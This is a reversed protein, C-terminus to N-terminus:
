DSGVQKETILLKWTARPLATSPSDQLQLLLSWLTGDLGLVSGSPAQAIRQLEDIVPQWLRAVQKAMTTWGHLSSCHIINTAFGIRKHQQQCCYVYGPKRSTGHAVAGYCAGVVHYSGRWNSGVDSAQLTAAPKGWLMLAAALLMRGLQLFAM